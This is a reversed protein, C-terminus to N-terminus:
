ADRRVLGKSLMQDVLRLLDASLQAPDVDYSDLLQQHVDRLSPSRQLAQWADTAVGDLDFYIGTELNLVVTEGGLDRSVVVDPISIRDNLTLESMPWIKAGNGVVYGDRRRRGILDHYVSPLVKGNRGSKVGEAPEQVISQPSIHSIFDNM